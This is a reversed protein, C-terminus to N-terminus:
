FINLLKKEGNPMIRKIENIQIEKGPTRGKTWSVEVKGKKKGGEILYLELGQERDLCYYIRSFEPESIKPNEGFEGIVIPSSSLYSRIGSDSQGWLLNHILKGKYFETSVIILGLLIFFAIFFAIFKKSFKDLMIFRFKIRKGFLKHSVIKERM